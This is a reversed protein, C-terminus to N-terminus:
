VPSPTDVRRTGAAPLASGDPFMRICTRWRERPLVDILMASVPQSGPALRLRLGEGLEITGRHTAVVIAEVPESGGRPLEAPMELEVVADALEEAASWDRAALTTYSPAFDAIWEDIAAGLPPDEISARAHRFWHDGPHCLLYDAGPQPPAGHQGRTARLQMARERGTRRAEAARELNRRVADSWQPEPWPAILESLRDLMGLNRESSRGGLGASRNALVKRRALAVAAALQADVASDAGPMGRAPLGIMFPVVPEAAARLLCEERVAADRGGGGPDGAWELLQAASEQDWADFDEAALQGLHEDAVTVAGRKCGPLGRALGRHSTELASAAM